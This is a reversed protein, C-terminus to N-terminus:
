SVPTLTVTRRGWKLAEAHSPFWIDIRNGSIAGGRDRVTFVTDGFGSIKFQSGFSYGKPAAITGWAAKAGSATVGDSKGCCTACSCYGTATVTRGGASPANTTRAPSPTPRTVPAAKAVPTPKLPREAIALANPTTEVSPATPESLRHAATVPVEVAVPQPPTCRAVSFSIALILVPVLVWAVLHSITKRM